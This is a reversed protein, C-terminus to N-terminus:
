DRQEQPPNWLIKLSYRVVRTEIERNKLRIGCFKSRIQHLFASPIPSGRARARHEPHTRQLDPQVRLRGPQHTALPELPHHGRCWKGCSVRRRTCWLYLNRSNYLCQRSLGGTSSLLPSLYAHISQRSHEASHNSSERSKLLQSKIFHKIM